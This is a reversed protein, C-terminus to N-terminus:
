NYYECNRGKSLVLKSTFNAIIVPTYASANDLYLNHASFGKKNAAYINAATAVDTYQYFTTDGGGVTNYIINLPVGKCNIGSVNYVGDNYQDPIELSLVDTFFTEQFHYITQIGKYITDPKGFKGWHRLNENYIDYIDKTPFDQQDVSWKSSVIKSGNRVFYLANNFTRPMGSDVQNDFTASYVGTEGAQPPSILTNIPQTITTRNPAQFTGILYNLSQSSVTIRMSQNKDLTSTGTFTQYNKFYIQFQHGSDLARNLADYYSSDGFEYRTITFNINSFTFSPTDAVIAAANPIAAQQYNSGVTGTTCNGASGAGTDGITFGRTLKSYNQIDIIKNVATLNVVGAPADAVATITDAAIDNIPDMSNLANSNAVTTYINAGGSPIIPWTDPVTSGAMLVNTGELTFELTLDGLLATNLIFTSSEGLFGIFRRQSYRDLLRAQKNNLDTNAGAADYNSVPYGRRTYLKGKYYYTMLSPDALAGVEDQMNSGNYVWDSIANYVYSYQAINQISRGNIRIDLQSIMSAIGNRPLYYTQVYNNAANGSQNGGHSTQILADFSLSRLDFVSDVPFQVTIKNGNVVAGQQTPLLKVTQKYIQSINRVRELLGAPAVFNSHEESM